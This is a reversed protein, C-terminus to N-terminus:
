RPKPDLKFGTPLMDDNQLKQIMASDSARFTVTSDNNNVIYTGKAPSSNKAKKKGGGNKDTNAFSILSVTLFAIALLGLIMKKMM